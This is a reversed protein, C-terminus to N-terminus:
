VELLMREPNELCEKIRVLFSVAERGDIIRHDYSLALYMVPRIEVKGNVAVPREVINHMGLIGSQPPNLIPTSLMSGYIGGNSITFTGGQLEPLTLKNNVAKDVLKGLEQETQAFSYQDANKLVPVVLGRGGGVAVGINYYNKYVIDTGDIEANVSPFAKLAEISAKIFFSMFGLKFGYKKVFRDQYQKRLAMIATMDVENFTTLMAANHQAEVLRRAVTQRLKSMAVREELAGQDVTPRPAEASAAAPKSKKAAGSKVHELVDGKTVRGGPGTGRIDALELNNEEVLRRVAPGVKDHADGGQDEGQDAAAPQKPAAESTAGGADGGKSEGPEIDAIIDGPNVSDDIAFRLKKITGSVPAPVEVTIKDTELEAIIEDEEVFDGEKKLWEAIIAETVSEGLTPVEVPVSM